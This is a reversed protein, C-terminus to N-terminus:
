ESKRGKKERKQRIGLAIYWQDRDIEVTPWINGCDLCKRRRAICDDEDHSNVVTNNISGCEPCKM